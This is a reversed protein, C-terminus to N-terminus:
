PNKTFILNTKEYRVVRDEKRKFIHVCDDNPRALLTEGQRCLPHRNGGLENFVTKKNVFFYIVGQDGDESYIIELGLGRYAKKLHSEDIPRNQPASIKEGHVVTLLIKGPVLPPHPSHNIKAPRASNDKAPPTRKFTPAIPNKKPLQGAAVKSKTKLRQKLMKKVRKDAEKRIEAIKRIQQRTELSSPIKAVCSRM